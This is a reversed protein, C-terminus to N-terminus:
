TPSLLLILRPHGRGANFWSKLEAVGQLHPLSSAPAARPSVAITAALSIILGGTRAHSRIRRILKVANSIICSAAVGESARKKRWGL